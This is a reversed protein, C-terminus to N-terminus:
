PFELAVHDAGTILPFCVQNDTSAIRIVVQNKQRSGNSPLTNHFFITRHSLLCCGVTGARTGCRIYIVVTDVSKPRLPSRIHQLKNSPSVIISFGINGIFATFGRLPTVSGGWKNKSTKTM